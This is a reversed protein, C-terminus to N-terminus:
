CTGAWRFFQLCKKRERFTQWIKGGQPNKRIENKNFPQQSIGNKRLHRLHRRGGQLTELPPIANTLQGVQCDKNNNM